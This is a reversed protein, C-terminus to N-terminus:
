CEVFTVIPVSRRLRNELYASSKAPPPLAVGGAHLIRSRQIVQLSLQLQQPPICGALPCQWERSSSVSLRPVESSGKWNGPGILAQAQPQWSSMEQEFINTVHGKCKLCIRM